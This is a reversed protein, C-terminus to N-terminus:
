GAAHGHGTPGKEAVFDTKSSQVRLTKGRILKRVKAQVARAIGRLDDRFDEPAANDRCTAAFCM